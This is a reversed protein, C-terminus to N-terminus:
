ILEMENADRGSIETVSIRHGCADHTLAGHGAGHDLSFAVLATM